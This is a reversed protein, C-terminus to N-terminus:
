KLKDLEYIANAYIIASTILNGININEDAQHCLDKEGPMNAGFSVFNKFARAYTAGGIAIPEVNKNTMNNFINTLTKVLESSKPVLLHEKEGNFEVKLNNFEACKEKFKDKIFELKTYIPVRLNMGIKLTNNELDFRAINLTLEGSEDKKNIDLINGNYDDKLYKNFFELIENSVNYKTYVKSLLQMIQTVANKGLDPHAAHSSVGYSIIKILTEDQKEIKINYNNEEIIKKMEIDLNEINSNYRLTCKCYKPVVNIANNNCDLSEIIIDKNKKYPMKIFTNIIGKEAYICPFDADPSFGINPIEEKQKYHEICKWDKEENLGIILRIRKNTKITDKVAKMAYLAAITPGKDDIAGRGYIKNDVIKPEYPKTIIWDKEDAPVVDLHSVIGILEEGEGFEIYGCYGDINKTRFGLEEGLNLIYNLAKNCEQGFPMNPQAKSEESISPIKILNSINEIIEQKNNEIEKELKEKM